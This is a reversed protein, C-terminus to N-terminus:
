RTSAHFSVKGSRVFVKLREEIYNVTLMKRLLELYIAGDLEARASPAVPSSKRSMSAGQRTRERRSAREPGAPSAPDDQGFGDTREISRVRRTLKLKRQPKRRATRSSNM